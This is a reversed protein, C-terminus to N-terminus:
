REITPGSSSKRSSVSRLVVVALQRRHDQGLEHRGLPPLAQQVVLGRPQELGREEIMAAAQAELPHDDVHRVVQPLSAASSSVPQGRGSAIRAAGFLRDAEQGTNDGTNYEPRPTSDPM